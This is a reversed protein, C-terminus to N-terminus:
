TEKRKIVTENKSGRPRTRVVRVSTRSWPSSGSPLPLVQLFTVDKVVSTGRSTPEKDVNSM